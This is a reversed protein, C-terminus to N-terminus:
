RGIKLRWIATTRIILDEDNILLPMDKLPKAMVLDMGNNITDGLRNQFEAMALTIPVVLADRVVQSNVANFGIKKKISEEVKTATEDKFAQTLMNELLSNEEETYGSFSIPDYGLNIQFAM